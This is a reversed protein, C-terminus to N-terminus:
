RASTSSSPGGPSTGGPRDSGDSGAARTGRDDDRPEAGEAAEEEAREELLEEVAEHASARDQDAVQQLGSRTALDLHPLFVSVVAALVLMPVLAGLVPTLAHVYSDVIGGRVTDPLAGVVQPTLSAADLGHAKAQALDAKVADDGSAALGGLFGELNTALRSTFAAGIIAAGLSVGIQRFFNNDSTATGVIHPPVSNQVLLVLLQVIMGIGTGLLTTYAIVLGAPSHADLTSMLFMGVAAVLTGTVPWARYHGTRSVLAGVITAAGLQGITMPILMLGSQTPTLGYVMQLYTPLYGMAGFMAAMTLMGVLTCVIFTRNRLLQLPLIAEEAHREAAPLLGWCAIVAAGLALIPWSVWAYQHGGWTALLVLAVAGLDLLALGLWDVKARLEHSPLKMAIFIAIWVIVGLPINVWFVVRWSVADTLWGGILPGLVSAIGFMASIPAQYVGRVRAPIIDATIAQSCIILGGGGLGQIFRFVIFMGMTQATGSLGSGVLFLAIAVLLVHKRGILDGLKGYVPMSITMALSYATIIWSMHEVGGLSGVITPLASGVITQSVSSLFMTILLCAYIAWFRNDPHFDVAPEPEAATTDPETM